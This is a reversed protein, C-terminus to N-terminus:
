DGDTENFGLPLPLITGNTHAVPDIYSYPANNLKM